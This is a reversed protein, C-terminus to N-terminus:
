RNKLGKVAKVVEVQIISLLAPRNCGAMAHRFGSQLGTFVRVKNSSSRTRRTHRPADEDRSHRPNRVPDAYTHLVMDHPMTNKVETLTAVTPTAWM